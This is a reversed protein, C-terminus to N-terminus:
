WREARKDLGAGCVTVRHRQTGEGTVVCDVRGLHLGRSRPCGRGGRGAGAGAGEITDPTLETYHDM